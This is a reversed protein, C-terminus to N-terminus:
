KIKNRVYIWYKKMKNRISKNKIHSRHIESRIKVKYQNVNNDIINM